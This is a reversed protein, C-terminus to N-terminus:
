EATSRTMRDLFSAVDEAEVASIRHGMEEYDKVTVHTFGTLWRNTYSVFPQPLIGDHPDRGGIVPFDTASASQDRFYAHSSNVVIGSLMVIGDVLDPHRRAVSTEVENGQSFGLVIISTSSRTWQQGHTQSM